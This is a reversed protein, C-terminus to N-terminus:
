PKLHKIATVKENQHARLIRAQMDEIAQEKKPQLPRGVEVGDPCFVQLVMDLKNGLDTLKNNLDNYQADTIM